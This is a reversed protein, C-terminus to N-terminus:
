ANGGQSSQPAMKDEMNDRIGLYQRFADLHSLAREVSPNYEADKQFARFLVWDMLPTAYEDALNIVTAATAIGAPIKATIIQIYNTGASKPYVWFKKPLKVPDYIVHKVTASADATQWGPYCADMTGRDVLSIADGYTTGDIIGMNYTVDLLQTATSPLSQLTGADLLVAEETANADPKLTVIVEEGEILWDLLEAAAWRANSSDKLIIEAKDIIVSALTSM